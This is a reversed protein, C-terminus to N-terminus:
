RKALLRLDDGCRQASRSGYASGIMMTCATALGVSSFVPLLRRPM